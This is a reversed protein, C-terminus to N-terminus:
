AIERPYFIRLDEMVIRSDAAKDYVGVFQSALMMARKDFTPATRRMFEVKGGVFFVGVAAEWSNIRTMVRAHAEGLTIQPAMLQGKAAM